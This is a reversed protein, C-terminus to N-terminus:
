GVSHIAAAMRTTSAQGVPMPACPVTSLALCVGGGEQDTAAIVRHSSAGRVASILATMSAPTTANHNLNVVLLGGYQHASWDALVADTLPGQFGVMMVAGVEQDLTLGGPGLQDAPSPSPSAQAMASASSRPSPAPPSQASPSGSCAVLLGGLLAATPGRWASAGIM